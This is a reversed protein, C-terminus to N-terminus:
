NSISRIMVIVFDNSSLSNTKYLMDEQNCVTIHHNLTILYDVHILLYQNRKVSVKFNINVRCTFNFLVKARVHIM